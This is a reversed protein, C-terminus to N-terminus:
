EGLLPYSIVETGSAYVTLLYPKGEILLMPCTGSQMKQDTKMLLSLIYVKEVWSPPQELRLSKLGTDGYSVLSIESANESFLELLKSGYYFADTTTAPESMHVYKTILYDKGIDNKLYDNIAKVIEESFKEVNPELLSLCGTLTLVVIVVLLYLMKRM